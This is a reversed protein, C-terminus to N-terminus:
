VSKGSTGARNLGRTGDVVGGTRVVLVVSFNVSPVDVVATAVNLLLLVPLGESAGLVDASDTSTTGSTLEVLLPVVLPRDTFGAMLVVLLVVLPIDAVGTMPVVLLVVLPIDAVGTM